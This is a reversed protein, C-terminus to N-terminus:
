TTLWGARPVAAQVANATEERSLDTSDVFTARGALVGSILRDVGLYNAATHEGRGADRELITPAPATLVVFTVDTGDFLEDVTDLQEQSAIVEDIIPVVGAEAFNAAMQAANRTRLLLQLHAEPTGASPWEAGTVIMRHLEDAEIHAARALRTALMGAITSKGVGPAGTIVIPPLRTM